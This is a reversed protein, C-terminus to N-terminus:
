KKSHYPSWRSRCEKGVRHEESRFEVVRVVGHGQDIVRGIAVVAEVPKKASDQDTGCGERAVVGVLHRVVVVIGPLVLATLFPSEPEHAPAAAISIEREVTAGFFQLSWSFVDHIRRVSAGFGPLLGEEFNHGIVYPYQGDFSGLTLSFM